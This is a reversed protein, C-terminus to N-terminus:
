CNMLFGMCNLKSRLYQEAAQPSAAHLISNDRARRDELRGHLGTTVTPKPAERWAERQDTAKLFDDVADRSTYWRGGIRHAELRAGRVGKRVWRHLTATPPRRGTLSAIYAAAETLSLNCFYGFEGQFM